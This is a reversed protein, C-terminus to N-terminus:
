FSTNTELFRAIQQEGEEPELSCVCYVLTGGPAVMEATAALFRAQLGALRRIDAETKLHLLDPHRRITGTATCPADLLVADFPESPRWDLVDAQVSSVHDAFGLRRM